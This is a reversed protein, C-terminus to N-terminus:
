SFTDSTINKYWSIGYVAERKRGELSLDAASIGGSGAVEGISGDAGITYVGAVSIGYDPAILSYCTNTYAPRPAKAGLIASAINAAAVKAQTNAAYASKPMAGAICADGVVYVGKAKKSEFSAAEVPCWGKDDTLGAKEAIPGAKQPPIVNLVDAKYEDFEAKATRTKPDIAEVKGGEAGSKWEIMDGYNHKWGAMFLGQKSFKDKADLILVKSKTKGHHKLFFAIQAAREYPGPPCRFPNPPAVIVVLGGDKMGEIQKKLMLTQPGAKWAHPVLESAAEDYGPVAGWKFAVGPAVILYDAEFTKGGKTKVVKKAPDLDVVEDTVVKIGRKGLAAYNFTLSKMDREGGLVENSFPCSIYDKEKEILTVEAEPAYMKTYKAAIAGAYGGGVVVVRAKAAGFSLLPFGAAGLATAAGALKVFDRRNITSM